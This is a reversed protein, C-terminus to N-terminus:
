RDRGIFSARPRDCEVTPETGPLYLETYADEEPCWSSALLGTKSDVRRQILGTPISWPEPIDLLPRPTHEEGEGEAEEDVVDDIYVRRM